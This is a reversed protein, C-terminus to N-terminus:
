SKMGEIEIVIDVEEGVLLQGTEVAQNWTLGFDKRNIRTSVTFSILRNGWPDKGEGLLEVDLVVPKQVGHLTLLGNMKGQDESENLEIVGTTEFSITPFNEVDFFDGSRLHKDRKEVNTDITAVDITGSAKWNQSEGPAYEITGEFDRFFGQVKTFLHRIKFSVTTHDKDVTYTAAFAVPTFILTMLILLAATKIRM